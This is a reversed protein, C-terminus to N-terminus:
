HEGGCAKFVMDEEPPDPSLNVRGDRRLEFGCLGFFFAVARGESIEGGDSLVVAAPEDEEDEEEEREVLDVRCVV